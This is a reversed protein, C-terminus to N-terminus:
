AEVQVPVLRKGFMVTDKILQAWRVALELGEEAALELVDDPLDFAKKFPTTAEPVEAVAMDVLEDWAEHASLDLVANVPESLGVLEGLDRIGIKGDEFIKGVGTGIQGVAVAAKKLTEVGTSKVEETM